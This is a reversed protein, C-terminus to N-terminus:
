VASKNSRRQNFLMLALVFAVIPFIVLNLMQWGQSNLLLGSMFSGVAVISFILFDNFGQAVSKEEDSASEAVLATAGIFGFNWGIGLLILSGWFHTLELGVLAIVGSVAILLLGISTIRAKGYKAMLKGTFFSPAFMALVHWQIGLAAQHVEHGHSVMAIPAATMVFAMLGYSVVGAAVATVYKPRTLLDLLRVDSKAKQKAGKAESSPLTALVLLALVALVSLGFFSGAYKADMAGQTWVVVQPGIVAAALGGIMVRSIAKGQEPGQLGEAIAFRYSQVHAAYFGVLLTGVCFWVFSQNIISTAAIVGAIMAVVAAFMYAAKRGFQSVLFAAPLTSLAVGLNFLFVPMTMLEQPANLSMSVLGGLSIIIPPSAAGLAQAVPYLQVNRNSMFKKKEKLGSVSAFAFPVCYTRM